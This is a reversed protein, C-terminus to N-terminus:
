TPAHDTVYYLAISGGVPVATDLGGKFHVAGSEGAM